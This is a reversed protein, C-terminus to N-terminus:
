RQWEKDGGKTTDTMLPHNYPRQKKFKFKNM